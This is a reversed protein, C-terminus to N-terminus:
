EGNKLYIKKWFEMMESFEKEMKDVDVDHNRLKRLLFGESAYYMDMLMMRIDLDEKFVSLDIKMLSKYSNIKKYEQYNEQIDHYVDPDDEYFAKLAFNSLDPYERMLDMKCKLGLEMMEFFDNKDYCQYKKLADVTLECSKNWLFLYFEKKNHFYHFLLSKSIGAEKAVEGVPSKKYSNKSFIKFGANIIIQQKEVPLQYFKDNM